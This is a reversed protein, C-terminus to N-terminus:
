AIGKGWEIDWIDLAAFYEKGYHSFWGLIQLERWLEPKAFINADFFSMYRDFWESPSDKVGLNTEDKSPAYLKNIDQVSKDPTRIREMCRYWAQKILLNRWNVFQFHLMGYTYGELIFTKGKLNTPTRKTHIFQSSYSCKGDDCFIFDKYNWTWVSRDFRYSKITRWLQVWNLGLIDGPQLSLIKNRLFNNELCNASLMEDADIVIFHTGGIDRGAQLLANRDGPEDRYWNKKRIIREVKCEKALAEVLAVTNDTSADDLYVIADTHLSLAKLCQTIFISENRAPLLGVIKPEKALLTINLIIFFISLIYKLPITRM